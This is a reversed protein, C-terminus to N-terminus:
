FVLCLHNILERISEIICEKLENECDTCDCIKTCVLGNQRYVCGQSNWKLKQCSCLSLRCLSMEITAELAPLQDTM